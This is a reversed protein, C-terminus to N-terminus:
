LATDPQGFHTGKWPKQSHLPRKRRSHLGHFTNSFDSSPTCLSKSPAAIPRPTISPKSLVTCPKGLLQGSTIPESYVVLIRYRTYKSLKSLKLDIHSSKGVSASPISKRPHRPEHISFHFPVYPLSLAFGKSLVHTTHLTIRQIRRNFNPCIVFLLTQSLRIILYNYLVVAIFAM